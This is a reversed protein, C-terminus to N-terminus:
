YHMKQLLFTFFVSCWVKSFVSFFLETSKIVYFLSHMDLLFFFISSGPWWLLVCWVEGSPWLALGQNNKLHACMVEIFLMGM